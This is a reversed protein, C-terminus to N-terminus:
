NKGLRKSLRAFSKLVKLASGDDIHERAVHAGHSLNSVKSAAWLAAASNLILADRKPGRDEGSLVSHIIRANASADGGTLQDNGAPDLGISEADMSLVKGWSQSTCEIAVNGPELSLEDLGGTGHVVFAHHTGLQSLTQAIDHLRNPDPIGILQHTAGAPNSLPGLWNFLTRRGLKARAKAVHKMAPHFLRANLFTFGTDELVQEAQEPGLEINADLAELVDASGCRSSVSRNGHKAVPVGAAAAVFATATSINYTNSRDGGTGCTDLLRDWRRRFHIGEARLAEAGGLIEEATEGRAALAQLFGEIEEDAAEGRMMFRVAAATEERTLREGRVLRPLLERIM